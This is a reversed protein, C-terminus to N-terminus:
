ALLLHKDHTPPRWPLNGTADNSTYSKWVDRHRLRGSMGLLRTKARYAWESLWTNLTPPRWCSPWGVKVSTVSTNSRSVPADHDERRNKSQMIVVRLSSYLARNPVTQSKTTQTHFVKPVALRIQALSVHFVHKTRRESLNLHWTWLDLDGPLPVFFLMKRGNQHGAHPKHKTFCRRGRTQM